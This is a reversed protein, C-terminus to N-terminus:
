LTIEPQYQALWNQFVMLPWLLQRQNTKGALHQNITRKIFPYHFIGQDRMTREDLLSLMYDKLESRLWLGLPIDFGIKPRKHLAPPLYASLAKKLIHKTQLGKLRLHNPISLALEVMRHDLFPVRVELSVAMSMRDVKPLLDDQLYLHLDLYNVRDLPDDLAALAEQYQNIPSFEEIPTVQKLFEPSFVAQKAAPPYAGWWLYNAQEPPYALGTLFKQLKFKIDLRKATTPLLSLGARLLQRLCRPVLRAFRAIKYAKYTDYGLFLEDGGDGALAVTIHPRSLASVLYTPIISADALPEDLNRVIAPLLEIAKAFSLVKEHHQTHFFRSATRAYGLENFTEEAFGISFTKVQTSCAAAAGTVMTSDVGGSLFVGLPVDAILRMDVASLFTERIRELWEAEALNQKVIHPQWYKELRWGSPDIIAMQGPLLKHIDQYMTRPASVCEFTLYHYLAHHDLRPRVLPFALLSKIESAFVTAGDRRWYHLPKIGLRDRALVLRQRPKDYVAFAFMGNLRHVMDAGYQEYLHVLVETDSASRFVHGQSELGRRLERYNYIEGNCVVAVSKDENYQPQDGTHLDIVALRRMGLAVPHDYYSGMGDPGRHHLRETMRQLVSRPNDVLRNNLYFGCIGCM